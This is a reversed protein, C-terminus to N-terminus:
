KGYAEAIAEVKSLQDDSLGNEYDLTAALALGAASRAHFGSDYDGEILMTTDDNFTIIMYARGALTVNYQEAAIAASDANFVYLGEYGPEYVASGAAKQVGTSDVKPGAAAEARSLTSADLYIVGYEIGKIGGDTKLKALKDYSAKGISTMWRIATTEGTTLAAGDLTDLDATYIDIVSTDATVDIFNSKVVVGDVVAFLFTGEYYPTLDLQGASEISVAEGNITLDYTEKEIMTVTLNDITVRNGHQIKMIANDGFLAKGEDSAIYEKYVTTQAEDFKGLLQYDGYAGAAADWTAVSLTAGEEPLFVSKMKYKTEQNGSYSVEDGTENITWTGTSNRVATRSVAGNYALTMLTNKDAQQVISDASFGFMRADVDSNDPQKGLAHFVYECEVIFGQESIKSDSALKVVFNSQGSLTGGFSSNNSPIYIDLAGDVISAEMPAAESGGYIYRTDRLTNKGFIKKILEEGTLSAYEENSFDDEFLPETQGAAMVSPILMAMTTLVMALALLTSLLKKM